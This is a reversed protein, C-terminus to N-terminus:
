EGVVARRVGRLYEIRKVPSMRPVPFGKRQKVLAELVGLMAHAHEKDQPGGRPERGNKYWVSVTAHPRDLWRALDAITLNGAASVKRLRTGFEEGKRTM